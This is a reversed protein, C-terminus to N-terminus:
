LYLYLHFYLSISVSISISGSFPICVSISLFNLWNPNIGTWKYKLFNEAHVAFTHPKLRISRCSAAFSLLLFFDTLFSFLRVLPPTCTSGCRHSILLKWIIINGFPSRPPPQWSVRWCGSCLPSAQFVHSYSSFSFHSLSLTFIGAGNRGLIVIKSDPMVSFTVRSLIPQSKPDYRFSAQLPPSISAMYLQFHLLLLPCSFPFFHLSLGFNLFGSRVYTLSAHSDSVFVISLLCCIVSLLYCVISLCVVCVSWLCCIASLLVVSLVRFVVSM